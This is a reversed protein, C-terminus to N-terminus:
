NTEIIQQGHYLSAKDEDIVIHGGPCRGTVTVNLGEVRFIITALRKIQKAAAGVLDGNEEHAVFIFLKRKSWKEFVKDITVKRFIDMYVLLNDIIMIEIANRRQVLNGNKNIYEFEDEIDKIGIKENEFYLQSSNHDIGLRNMTGKFHESFGEEASIYMTLAHKRLMNALMLNFWSKGHKEAGYAIWFGHREPAGLVDKWIGEFDEFKANEFDHVNKVTKRRRKRVEM